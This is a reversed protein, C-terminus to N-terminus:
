DLLIEPSLNFSTDTIGAEVSAPNAWVSKKLVIDGAPWLPIVGGKDPTGYKWDIHYSTTATGTYLKKETFTELNLAWVDVPASQDIDTHVYELAPDESPKSYVLYGNTTPAAQIYTLQKTRGDPLSFVQLGRVTWTGTDIFLYKNDSSQYLNVHYLNDNPNAKLHYPFTKKFTGDKSAITIEESVWEIERSTGEKYVHELTFTKCDTVRLSYRANEVYTYPKCPESSPIWQPTEQTFPYEHDRTDRDENDIRYAIGNAFSYLLYGAISGLVVILLARTTTMKM